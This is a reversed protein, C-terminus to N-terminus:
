LNKLKEKKDKSKNFEDHQSIIEKKLGSLSSRVCKFFPEM